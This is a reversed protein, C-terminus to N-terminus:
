PTMITAQHSGDAGQKGGYGFASKVMPNGRPHHITEETKEISPEPQVEEIVEPEEEKVVSQLAKVRNKVTPLSCGTDEVLQELSLKDYNSAIYDEQAKTLKKAM